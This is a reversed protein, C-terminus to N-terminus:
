CKCYETGSASFSVVWIMGNIYIRSQRFDIVPNVPDEGQQAIIAYPLQIMLEGVGDWSMLRQQGEELRMDARGRCMRAFEAGILPEKQGLSKAAKVSAAHLTSVQLKYDANFAELVNSFSSKVLVLPTAPDFMHHDNLFGTATDLGYAYPATLIIEAGARPHGPFFELKTKVKPETKLESNVTDELSKVSDGLETVAGALEALGPPKPMDTMKKGM